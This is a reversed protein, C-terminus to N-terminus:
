KPEPKHSHPLHHSHPNPHSHAHSDAHAHREADQEREDEEKMVKDYCNPCISHSFRVHSAKAVHNELETWYDQDDRVRRCYSCIPILRQLQTVEEMAHELEEVRAALSEQLSIIREGNRVRARFEEALFPKAVYDDAGAQLGAVVDKQAHRGTLMIIYAPKGILLNRVKRCLDIGTYGPMEWDFIMLRPAEGSEILALAADGDNAFEVDYGWWRLHRAILTRQLREDDALLIRM